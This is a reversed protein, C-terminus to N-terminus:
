DEMDPNLDLDLFGGPMDVQMPARHDMAQLGANVAPAANSKEIPDGIGLVQILESVM